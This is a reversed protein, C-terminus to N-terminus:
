GQVKISQWSGSRDGYAYERGTSFDTVKAKKLYMTYPGGAYDTDGGAWVRTGEPLSPDGGAWIGISMRMPTQPYNATRNADAAKLTRVHGGDIYWDIQEKTWVTTYNHYDAQMGTMPHAGGNHFDQRGKGFFNTTAYTTNSGLFEWDVEDLDDSLWMMSSIIGRGPAARLLIETRGFFFYFRTRITPSDGQKRITFAAGTKADYDVVGATTEWLESPPAGDFNWLGEAGLAPDAPCGDRELPNCKTQVQAAAFGLPLASAALLRSLLM